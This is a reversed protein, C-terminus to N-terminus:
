AAVGPTSVTLAYGPSSSPDALTLRGGKTQDTASTDLFGTSDRGDLRDANLSYAASTVRVRPSRVEAGGQIELCAASYAACVASLSTYTGPGSGDSVTGTGLAVNFLGGTVGVQPGPAVHADVLVEDGGSAASWFRFTMDFSGTLPTDSANRLVGQYNLTEP